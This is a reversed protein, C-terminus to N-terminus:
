KCFIEKCPYEQFFLRDKKKRLQRLVTKDSLDRHWWHSCGNTCDESKRRSDAISLTVLLIEFSSTLEKEPLNALEYGFKYYPKNKNRLKAAAPSADKKCTQIAAAIERDTPHAQIVMNLLNLITNRKQADDQVAFWDKMYALSHIQQTFQNLLIEEEITFPKQM